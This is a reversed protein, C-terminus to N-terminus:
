RQSSWLHCPNILSTPASVGVPKAAAVASINSKATMLTRPTRHSASHLLIATSQFTATGTSVTTTKITTDNWAEFKVAAPPKHGVTGM